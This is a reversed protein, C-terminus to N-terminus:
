SLSMGVCEDHKIVDYGDELWCRVYRASKDGSKLKSRFELLLYLLSDLEENDCRARYQEAYCTLYVNRNRVQDILSNLLYYNCSETFM